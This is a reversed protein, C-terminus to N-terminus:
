YYVQGHRNICEAIQRVLDIDSVSYSLFVNM